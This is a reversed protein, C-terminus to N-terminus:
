TSRIGSLPNRIGRELVTKCIAVSETFFLDNYAEPFSDM